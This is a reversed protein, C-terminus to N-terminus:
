GARKDEMELVMRVRDRLFNEILAKEVSNPIARGLEIAAVRSQMVGTALQMDLLSLECFKRLRRYRYNGTM